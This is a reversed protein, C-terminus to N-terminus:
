AGYRGGLYERLIKRHSGITETASKIGLIRNIECIQEYSLLKIERYTFSIPPFKKHFLRQLRDSSYEALRLNKKYTKYFSLPVDCPEFPELYGPISYGDYELHGRPYISFVLIM